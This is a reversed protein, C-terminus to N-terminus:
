AAQIAGEMPAADALGAAPLGARGFTKRPQVEYATSFINLLREIGRAENFRRASAIAAPWFLISLQMALNLLGSLPRGAAFFTVCPLLPNVKFYM